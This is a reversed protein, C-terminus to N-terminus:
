HHTREVSEVDWVLGGRREIRQIAKAKAEEPTNARVDKEWRIGGEVNDAKKHLIAPSNLLIMTVCFEFM